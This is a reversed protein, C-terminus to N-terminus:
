ASGTLVLQGEPLLLDLVGTLVYRGATRLGLPAVIQVPGTRTGGSPLYLVADRTADVGPTILSDVLLALNAELGEFPDDYADGEPDEYGRIEIPLLVRTETVRRPYAVVGAAGPILRNSGRVESGDLLPALNTIEWAPTALPIDDIELYVTSLIDYAM